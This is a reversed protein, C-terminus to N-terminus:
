CIKKGESEDRGKVAEQELKLQRTDSSTTWLDGLAYINGIEPTSKSWNTINSYQSDKM